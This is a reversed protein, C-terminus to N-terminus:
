DNSNGGTIEDICDNWGERYYDNAYKYSDEYTLKEPLLTLYCWEPINKMGIDNLTHSLKCLIFEGAPVKKKEGFRCSDCNEPTKMVLVSKSM